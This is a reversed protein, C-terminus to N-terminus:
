DQLVTRAFSSLAERDPQQTKTMLSAVHKEVTRPSIHLRSAISKNGIRDVLLRCVEYERTTIGLRRLDAPVQDSGTRRQSVTAGLQRLLSRCASSVPQIQATHFYEEAQRLWGIPDGWGDAHAPEAVLRMGLHRAMPYLSASEMAEAMKANAADHQGDRGLLVAHAMQVFQKNWRMGSAATATVVEFHPWSNRASLVGLLLALGNKGSAHFTTPNQADYALAQALDSDALQRDEELLACFARALGFTYPLEYSAREGGRSAAEALTQEMAARHGQHAELIAKTTLFYTAARGMRLRRTVELGEDIITAAKGYQSRLIAQQGLIGDVEYVLPIAGIRLGQQRARELEIISGTALCITGGQYVHSLMRQVTLGHEEAVQRARHFYDISEDLDRERALIGLLQLAECAVEPLNASEAAAAARTALETAVRVRGPSTRALELNAALVDVPALDAPAADNGLLARATALHTLAASSRGAMQEINSLQVHLAAVKRSDLNHDALEDVAAAHVPISDFEGTASLAMLLIGLVEARHGLDQDNALLTNARNLLNVASGTSGEDFSRQGALAFLRGARSRDGGTEALEGVMPCWEGPLGPHLEEIANACRRALDAQETPTLGALLADATLPHCFAYWDPGAEDPGVLQAAVGARLTALLLREDTGTAKRVVSLPFRHGIVAALVLVDRSENGLQGTRSTISRVVAAPVNTRLGDVVQLSGDPRALLQGSRSAEQLLEEVIFPVGASDHWLREALQAPLGDVPIELCEAALEVVETPQLPQLELLRASGRQAAVRALEAAACSESRLTAVLAIPQDELNDLLYEIVALTEPDADHLDELVLLCGRGRGVLALLRLVAEGLIVPSAGSEHATGDDWDPILRGLVQRYPGLSGPDPMEGRRILALLAETFPRFAVMTGLAGVRGRLAAMEEDLARATALAALRSKGIGPEGVLFVAGGHGGRTATLLNRLQDIEQNRGVVRPSRTQM